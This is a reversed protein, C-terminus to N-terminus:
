TDNCPSHEYNMHTPPLRWRCHIKRGGPQQLSERLLVERKQGTQSTNDGLRGGSGFRSVDALKRLVRARLTLKNYAPFRPSEGDPALRRRKALKRVRGVVLLPNPPRVRCDLSILGPHAQSVRM